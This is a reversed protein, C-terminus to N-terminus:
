RPQEPLPQHPLHYPRPTPTPLHGTPQTHPKPDAPVGAAPVPDGPMDRPWISGTPSFASLEKWFHQEERWARTDKGVELPIGLAGPRGGEM